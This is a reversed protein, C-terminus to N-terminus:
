NKASAKETQAAKAAWAEAQAPAFGEVNKAAWNLAEVLTDRSTTDKYTAFDSTALEVAERCDALRQDTDSDVSACQLLTLVVGQRNHSDEPQRKRLERHLDLAERYLKLAAEPDSAETLSRSTM